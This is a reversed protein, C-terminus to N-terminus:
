LFLSTGDTSSFSVMIEQKGRNEGTSVFRIKSLRIRGTPYTFFIIVRIALVGTTYSTVYDWHCHRRKSVLTTPSTM